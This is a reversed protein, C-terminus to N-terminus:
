GLAIERPKNSVGRSAGAAVGRFRRIDKNEKKQFEGVGREELGHPSNEPVADQCNAIM